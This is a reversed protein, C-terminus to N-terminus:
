RSSVACYASSIRRIEQWLALENNKFIQPYAWWFEKLLAQFALEEKLDSEYVITRPSIGELIVADAIAACRELSAFLEQHLSEIRDSAISFRNQAMQEQIRSHLNLSKVAFQREFESESIQPLNPILLGDHPTQFFQTKPHKKAFSAITDREMIWKLTTPLKRGEKGKRYLIKQRAESLLEQPGVGGAYLKKGSYALDVGLLYIPNCGLAAGLALAMTTVSLAERGLDPGIHSGSIGLKDELYAELSGGTGSRLYGYPGKFHELVQPLLRSCYILPIATEKCNRICEYEKPNPDIALGFHPLVGLHSLASLTSGGGLILAQDQWKKLFSASKELTPGAGCIIAPVGQFAGRMQNVSFSSPIKTFNAFVNHFFLDPHLAESFLSNWLITKKELSHKIKRFLSPNKKKSIVAIDRHPFQHACEELILDWSQPNAAFRIVVQPDDWYATERFSRLAGIEDELIVLTRASNAHLWKQLEDQILSGYCYLTQIADFDIAGLGKQPM